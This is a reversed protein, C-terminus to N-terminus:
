EWRVSIEISGDFLMLLNLFPLSFCCLMLWPHMFQLELHRMESGSDFKGGLQNGVLTVFIRRERSTGALSCHDTVHVTLHYNTSFLPKSGTHARGLSRHLMHSKCPQFPQLHIGLLFQKLHSRHLLHM